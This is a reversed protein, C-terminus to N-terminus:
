AGSHVDGCNLRLPQFRISKRRFSGRFIRRDFCETRQLAADSPKKKASGPDPAGTSNLTTSQAAHGGLCIFATNVPHSRQGATNSSRTVASQATEFLGLQQNGDGDHTQRGVPRANRAPFMPSFGPGSVGGVTEANRLTLSLRSELLLHDHAFPVCIALGDAQRSKM